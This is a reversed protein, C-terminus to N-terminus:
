YVSIFTEGDFHKQQECQISVVAKQQEQSTQAALQNAGLPMHKDLLKIPQATCRNPLVPPWLAVTTLAKDGLCDWVPTHCATKASRDVSPMAQLTRQRSQKWM